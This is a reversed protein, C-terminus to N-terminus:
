KYAIKRSEGNPQARLERAVSDIPEIAPPDSNDAVALDKLRRLSPMVRGDFSGVANNFAEVSGMISGRLQQLHEVMKSIREYLDRGERGIREASEAMREQRWGYAVAKLLAILTTPTALVVQQNAGDEILGPDYRLAADYFTEAPLFLVVFEPSPQLHQWYRKSSLQVMRARVQQAHEKLKAARQQEDRADLAELYAQLPVKADVVINAHGPLHVVLDPRLFGDETETTEQPHFDCRELMGALEVVRKLQVEGWRGRVQPASLATVLRSTESRLESQTTVLSKVQATLAGYAEGRVVEIARIQEDVKALSERVPQLILGLKDNALALFSKSNSDLAQAALSNFADTLKARAEELLAREHDLENQLDLARQEAAARAEGANRREEALAALESKLSAIQEKLSAAVSEAASARAEGRRAATLWGVVAGAAAAVIVAALLEM